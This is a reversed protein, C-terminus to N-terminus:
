VALVPEAAVRTVARMAPLLAVIPCSVTIWLAGTWLVPGTGFAQAPPGVVAFGLPALALTGISSNAEPAPGIL